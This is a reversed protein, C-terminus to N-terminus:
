SDMHQESAAAVEEEFVADMVIHKPALQGDRQEDILSMCRKLVERADYGLRKVPMASPVPWPFNCHAVVDVDDPVRVGAAMLGATAREVLNDDTIFLCDPRDPRGPAFLLHTINRAAVANGGLMWYPETTMNRATVLKQLNEQWAEEKASSLQTNSMFAVRRRGRSALYDIAKAFLNQSGPTVISVTPLDAPRNGMIAVCPMRPAKAALAQILQLSPRSAFIVGALRNAHADAILRQHEEGLDPQYAIGYYFRMRRDQLRDIESAENQFATDFRRWNEQGLHSFFALGYDCLHPPNAAVFTGLKGKSEIFGDRALRSFVNQITM